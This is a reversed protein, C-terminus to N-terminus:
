VYKKERFSLIRELFLGCSTEMRAIYLLRGFILKKVKGLLNSKTQKNTKKKQCKSKVLLSCPNLVSIMSRHYRCFSLSAFLQFPATRHNRPHRSEVRVRNYEAVVQALYKYNGIKRVLHCLTGRRFVHSGLFPQSVSFQM